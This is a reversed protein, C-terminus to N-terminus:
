SNRHHNTLKNDHYLSMILRLAQYRSYMLYMVKKECLSKRFFGLFLLVPDALLVLLYVWCEKKKEKKKKIRGEGQRQGGGKKKKNEVWVWVCVRVSFVKKKGKQVSSRLRAM